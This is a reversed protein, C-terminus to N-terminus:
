SLVALMRGRRLTAEVHACEPLWVSEMSGQRGKPERVVRGDREFIALIRLIQSERPSHLQCSSRRLQSGEPSLVSWNRVNELNAPRKTLPAGWRRLDDTSPPEM